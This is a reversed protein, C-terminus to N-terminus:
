CIRGELGAGLQHGLVIEVAETAMLLAILLGFARGGSPGGVERQGVTPEIGFPNQKPELIWLRNLRTGLHRRKIRAAGVVDQPAVFGLLDPRNTVVYEPKPRVRTLCQRRARRDLHGAFLSLAPM